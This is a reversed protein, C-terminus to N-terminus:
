PYAPNPYSLTPTVSTPLPIATQTPAETVVPSETVETGDPTGTTDSEPTSLAIGIISFKGEALLAGDKRSIVKFQLVEGPVQSVGKCTVGTSLGKVRKCQYTSEVGYRNIILVFEPYLLRPLQFNVLMDGDVLQGFSVVCLETDEPQCYALEAAPSRQGIQPDPGRDQMSRFLAVIVLIFLVALIVVGAILRRQQNPIDASM